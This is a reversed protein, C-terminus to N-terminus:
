SQWCWGTKRKGSQFYNGVEEWDINQAYLSPTTIDFFLAFFLKWYNM